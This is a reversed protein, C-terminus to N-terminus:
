QAQVTFSSSGGVSNTLTGSVSQIQNVNGMVVFQQSLLFQGGTTASASSQYYSAFVSSLPLTFSTPTVSGGPAIGLVFFAQQVERTDSFGQVTVDLFGGDRVATMGTIVPAQPAIRIQFVPAPSPTIDLGGAQLSLTITITGVVTGTQFRNAGTSFTGSGLGVPITFPLTNKGSAFVVSPDGVSGDPKLTMAATGTIALPYLSALSFVLKPQAAPAATVPGFSVGPLPLMAFTVPYTNATSIGTIDTVTVVLTQPGGVLSAGTIAGTNPNIALGAPLSATWTFPPVGGTASMPQTYAMGATGSPLTTQGIALPAPDIKLGVMAAATNGQGDVVRVPFSLVAFQPYTGSVTGNSLVVFGAPTQGVPMWTYPLVGGSAALRGTYAVTAMASALALSTIQLPAVTVKITLTTTNTTGVSDTVTVTLPFNGQPGPTGSIAGTASDITLAPPLGNASWRYPPVGGTAIVTASYATQGFGNPLATTTVTLLSPLIKIGLSKSATAGASDTVTATFTFVGQATAAGTLVGAASLSAGSPLSGGTVSWKYPPTGGAAALPISITAGMPTDALPSSATVTLGPPSIAVTYQQTLTQGDLQDAVQVNFTFSGAVPPGMLQCPAYIGIWAPAGQGLSCTYSGSGGSVSLGQVYNTGVQGAPLAAPTLQLAYDLTYTKTSFIGALDTVKITFAAGKGTPTGSIVGTSQNLTLGTPLSGSSVSWTYPMMGGQAGLQVSFSGTAPMAGLSSTYIVAQPYVDISISGTTVIAGIPSEAQVTATYSGAATPTGVISLTQNALILSIGPPLSGSTIVFIYPGVGAFPSQTAYPVGVEGGPLLAVNVTYDRSPATQSWADLVMAAGSSTGLYTPTGMVMGGGIASGVPSLGPVGGAFPPNVTYVPTGGTTIYAAYPVNLYAQPMATNTVRPNIPFPFPDSAINGPNVVAVAAGPDPYAIFENPVQVTFQTQSVPTVTFLCTDIPCGGSPVWEFQSQPEETDLNFNIAFNTGTVTLLLREVGATVSTGVIGTPM